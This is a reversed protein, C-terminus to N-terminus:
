RLSSDCHDCFVMMTRGDEHALVPHTCSLDGLRRLSQVYDAHAGALREDAAQTRLGVKRAAAQERIKEVRSSM